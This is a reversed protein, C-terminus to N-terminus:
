LNASSTSGASCKVASLLHTLQELTVNTHSNEHSDLAVAVDGAKWLRAKPCSSVIPKFNYESDNAHQNLNRM